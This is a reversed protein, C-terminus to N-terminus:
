AAFQQCIGASFCLDIVRRLQYTPESTAYVYVICIIYLLHLAPLWASGTADAMTVGVVLAGGPLMPYHCACECRM